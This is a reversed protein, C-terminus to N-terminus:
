ESGSKGDPLVLYDGTLARVDPCGIPALRHDIEDRYL